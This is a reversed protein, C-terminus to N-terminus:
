WGRPRVSLGDKLQMFDSRWQRRSVCRLLSVVDPGPPSQYDRPFRGGPSREGPIEENGTNNGFDFIRQWDNGGGWTAWGEITFNATKAINNPLDVYNNATVDNSTGSNGFNVQGGSINGSGTPNVFVGNATGVSDNATDDNFSYRHTMGANVPSAIWGLTAAIAATLVNRGRLAAALKNRNGRM